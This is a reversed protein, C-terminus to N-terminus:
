GALRLVPLDQETRTRLCQQVAQDLGFRNALQRELTEGPRHQCAVDDGQPLAEPDPHRHHRRGFARVHQAGLVSNPLALDDVAEDTLVPDRNALRLVLLMPAMAGLLALVVSEARRSSRGLPVTANRNVSM